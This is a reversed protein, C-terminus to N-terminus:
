DAVFDQQNITTIEEIATYGFSDDIDVLDPISQYEGEPGDKSFKGIWRCATAVTFLLKRSKTLDNTAVPSQVPFTYRSADSASIIKDEPFDFKLNLNEIIPVDYIIQFQPFINQQKIIKGIENESDINMLKFAYETQGMPSHCKIVMPNDAPICDSVKNGMLAERIKNAPVTSVTRRAIEKAKRTFGNSISESISLQAKSAKKYKKTEGSLLTILKSDLLFNISKSTSERLREATLGTKNKVHNVIEDESIGRNKKIHNFISVILYPSLELM